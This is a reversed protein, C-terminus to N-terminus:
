AKDDGESAPEDPSAAARAVQARVVVDLGEVAPVALVENLVTALRDATADPTSGNQKEGSSHEDTM